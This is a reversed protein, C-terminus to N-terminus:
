KYRPRRQVWRGSRSEPPLYTEELLALSSPSMFNPANAVWTAEVKDRHDYRKLLEGEQQVVLDGPKPPKLFKLVRLVVKNRLEQNRGQLVSLAEFRVLATGSYLPKFMGRPPHGGMWGWGNLQTYTIGEKQLCVVCPGSLSLDLVFPDTIKEVIHEAKCARVKVGASTSRRMEEEAAASIYGKARMFNRLPAPGTYLVQLLSIRWPGHGGHDILDHGRAFLDAMDVSSWDEVEDVPLVRFRVDGAVPHVSSRNHFYFIGKSNPPFPVVSTKGTTPDHLWKYVITCNAIAPLGELFLTKERIESLDLIDQTRCESPNLTSVKSMTRRGRSPIPPESDVSSGAVNNLLRYSALSGLALEKRCHTALRAPLAVLPWWCRRGLARKM